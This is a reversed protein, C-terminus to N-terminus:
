QTEGTEEPPPYFRQLKVKAADYILRSRPCRSLPHYYAPPGAINTLPLARKCEPCIVTPLLFDDYERM